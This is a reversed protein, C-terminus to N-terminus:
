LYHTGARLGLADLALPFWATFERPHSSLRQALAATDVWEYEAVEAANPEPLASTWGVFVHDIENEVLDGVAARYSFVCREELACDLGMEERLRRQAAAISTEDPRPHGCCTNTWLGPSHYKAHARRQLLLRAGDPSFVFVSVARHRQGDRHAALKEAVGIEADAADVLIVQEHTM